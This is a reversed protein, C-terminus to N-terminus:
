KREVQIQPAFYAFLAEEFYASYRELLEELPEAPGLDAGNELACAQGLAAQRARETIMNRLAQRSEELSAEPMRMAMPLVEDVTKGERAALAELRAMLQAQLAQYWPHTDELEAFETKEMVAKAVIGLIGRFKRKRQDQALKEFLYDELQALTAVGEIGLQPVHGDTLTPVHLRKIGAITMEVRRGAYSTQVQAGPTLGPLLDEIDDFGKGVNAWLRGIGDAQAPDPFTLAVVDGTQVPGDTPAITTFRAAMRQLQGDLEERTVEAQLLAAPIQVQRFDYLKKIM